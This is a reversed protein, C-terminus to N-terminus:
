FPWTHQGVMEGRDTKGEEGKGEGIEEVERERMTRRFNICKVFM